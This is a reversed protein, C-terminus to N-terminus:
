KVGGKNPEQRSTTMGKRLAALKPGPYAHSGKGTPRLKLSDEVPVKPVFSSCTPSPISKKAVSTKYSYMIDVVIDRFWYFPVMKTDNEQLAHDLIGKFM